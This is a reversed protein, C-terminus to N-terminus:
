PVAPPAPPAPDFASPGAHPSKSTNAIIELVVELSVSYRAAIVSAENVVDMREYWECADAATSCPVPEEPDVICFLPLWNVQIGVFLVVREGEDWKMKGYWERAAIAASLPIPRGLDGIYALSDDTM